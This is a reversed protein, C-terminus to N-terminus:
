IEIVTNHTTTTPIPHRKANYRIMVWGLLGGVIATIICIIVLVLHNLTIIEAKVPSFAPQLVMQWPKPEGLIPLKSFDPVTATGQALAATGAVSMGFAIALLLRVFQM